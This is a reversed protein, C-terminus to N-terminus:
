PQLMEDLNSWALPRKGDEIEHILRVLRELSPTPIGAERGIAAIIGIQADVETRRKRIALDRWIGSHSKASGRNFAVMADISAQLREESAGPSFAEPDFGNFGRPRVGKAHAVRMVEEGIRQYAVRHRSSALADAISENTLATGFLL